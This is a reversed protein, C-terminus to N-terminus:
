QFYPNKLFIFLSVPNSLTKNEESFNKLFQELEDPSLSSIEKEPYLEKIKLLTHFIDYIM